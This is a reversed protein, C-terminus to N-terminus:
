DAPIVVPFVANNGNAEKLLAKGQAVVGPEREALNKTEGPDAELDYLEWGAPKKTKLM